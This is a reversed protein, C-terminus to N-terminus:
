PRAKEVTDCITSMIQRWTFREHVAKCGARALRERADDEKLYRRVIELAEDPTNFWEMEGGRTFLLELDRCHESVLMTGSGLVQFVRLSFGTSGPDSNLNLAIKAGRYLDRLAELYVPPNDGDLGYTAVSIGHLRLHRIAAERHPLLRGVFVVDATKAAGPGRNFIETQVGQTLFLSRGGAREFLEAVNKRSASSVTARRAYEAARMSRAMALPDMFYYWTRSHQNIEEVLRCDVLEAKALLVLDYRNRRVKDLLRANMQQRMGPLSFLLLAAFRPMWPARLLSVLKLARLGWASGPRGLRELRRYDFEEVDHGLARLERAMPHHSSQPPEFVGVFLIRM